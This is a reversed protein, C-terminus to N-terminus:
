GDTTSRRPSPPETGICIVAYDDGLRRAGDYDWILPVLVPTGGQGYYDSDARDDYEAMDVYGILPEACVADEDYGSDHAIAWVTLGAPAAIIQGYNTM